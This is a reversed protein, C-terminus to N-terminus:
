FITPINNTEWFHLNVVFIYQMKVSLMNFNHLNYTFKATFSLITIIFYEARFNVANNEASNHMQMIIDVDGIVDKAYLSAGDSLASAIRSVALSVNLPLHDYM